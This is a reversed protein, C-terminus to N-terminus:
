SLSVFMLMNNGYTNVPEFGCKTFVHVAISNQTSVTLDVMQLGAAKAWDLSRMILESGIGQKRFEPLLGIGLEMHSPIAACSVPFSRCWGIVEGNTEAILLRHYHCDDREMAHLWANTPIFIRTSMWPSNACVVNITHSLKITDKMTYPRIVIM